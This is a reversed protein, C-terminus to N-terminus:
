ARKKAGFIAKKRTYIKYAIGGKIGKSDCVTFM